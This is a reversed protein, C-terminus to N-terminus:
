SEQTKRSNVVSAQTHWIDKQYHSITADSSFRGSAATNRISMQQWHKVDRFAQAARLQAQRYSEFDAALMWPDDSSRIAALIGDFIGPEHLNFHGSELLTMVGSLASSAQIYQQPDYHPRLAAVEHARLGFLFFNDEGVEELIEINAGDYTGITLAGNMMFKMNGTGSAEK